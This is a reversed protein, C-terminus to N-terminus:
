IHILSLFQATTFAFTRTNELNNKSVVLQADGINLERILVLPSDSLNASLYSAIADWTQYYDQSSHLYISPREISLENFVFRGVLISNIDLVANIREIDASLTINSATPSNVSIGSLKLHPTPFLNMDISGRIDVQYGTYSSVWSALPAKYRDWNFWQVLSVLILVMTFVAILSVLVTKQLKHM